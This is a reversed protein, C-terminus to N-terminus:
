DLEHPRPLDLLYGGRVRVARSGRLDTWGYREDTFQGSINCLDYLDSLKAEDYKELLAFLEEIVEEAAVRSPLVIEDFDHTARSHRSIERRAERPDERRTTGHPSAYRQYNTYGASSGRSSSARHRGRVEGFILREVGESVAQTVTDKAAPVLVDRLVYEWVSQADSGGVFTEMFRKGLPKKRRTAANGTVVPKEVRKEREVTKEPVEEKAKRSNSPYNEM